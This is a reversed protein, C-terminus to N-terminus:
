HAVFGPAFLNRSAHSLARQDHLCSRHWHLPKKLQEARSARDADRLRTQGRQSGEHFEGGSGQGSHHRCDGRLTQLARSDYDAQQRKQYAIILVRAFDRIPVPFHSMKKKNSCIEKAKGHQLFRSVQNWAISARASPTTGIWLDALLYCLLLFLAYNNTSVARRLDTERPRKSGGQKALRMATGSLDQPKM